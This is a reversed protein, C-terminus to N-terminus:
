RDPTSNELLEREMHKRWARGQEERSRQAQIRDGEIERYRQEHRKAELENGTLYLCRSLALHVFSEQPALVAARRLFREAAGPNGADLAVKGSEILAFPHDPRETRVEDLISQAQALQGLNRRYSALIVRVQVNRPARQRLVELHEAAERLDSEALAVALDLRADFHDPALKLAARFDAAAAQQDIFLQMKGHWHWAQAQDAQGPKLQRWQALCKEVDVRVQGAPGELLSQGAHYAADLRRLRAPIVVELILDAHPHAPASLCRAQLQDVVASEDREVAMLDVELQHAADAGNWRRYSRLHQLAADVDGGRRASQAALLLLAPDDPWFELCRRLHLSAQRFDRRTLAQDAARYHVRGEVARSIRYGGLGAALLLTVFLSKTQWSGWRM